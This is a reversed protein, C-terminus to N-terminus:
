TSSFVNCSALYKGVNEIILVVIIFQFVHNGNVYAIHEHRSPQLCQIFNFFHYLLLEIDLLGLFYLFKDSYLIIPTTVCFTWIIFHIRFFRLYIPLLFRYNTQSHRWPEYFVSHEQYSDLYSNTIIFWIYPYTCTIQPVTLTTCWFPSVQHLMHPLLTPWSCSDYQALVNYPIPIDSQIDLIWFYM